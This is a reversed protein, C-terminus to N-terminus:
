MFCLHTQSDVGEQMTTGKEDKIFAAQSPDAAFRKLTRRALNFDTCLEAWDVNQGIFLALEEPTALDTGSDSEPASEATEPAVESM